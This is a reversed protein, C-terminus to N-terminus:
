CGSSCRRQTTMWVRIWICAFLSAFTPLSAFASATASCCAVRAVSVADEYCQAARLLPEIDGSDAGRALAVRFLPAAEAANGRAALLMALGLNAWPSTADEELALRCM